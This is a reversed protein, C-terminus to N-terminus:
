SWWFADYVFHLTDIKNKPCCLHCHCFCDFTTKFQQGMCWRIERQRFCFNRWHWGFDDMCNLFIQLCLIHGGKVFPCCIKFMLPGLTHFNFPFFGALVIKRRRCRRPSAWITGSCSSIFPMWLLLDNIIKSGPKNKFLLVITKCLKICHKILTLGVCELM